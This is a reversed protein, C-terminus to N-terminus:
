TKDVVEFYWIKIESDYVNDLIQTVENRPIKQNPQYRCSLEKLVAEKYKTVTEHVLNNIEEKTAVKYM